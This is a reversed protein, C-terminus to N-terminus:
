IETAQLVIERYLEVAKELQEIEIFEDVVHAQEMSGPGLLLTQDFGRECLYPMDCCGKFYTIVPETGLVKEFARRCVTSVRGDPSVSSPSVCIFNELEYRIETGDFLDRLIARLEGELSAVTDGPVTRCDIILESVGPVANEKIGSSAITVTINPPPLIGCDRSQKGADLEQVKLAFRSMLYVANIGESPTGSHCQRGYIRVRFRTVGRHAIQLQLETPEGIVSITRATPPVSAAYYRMGIGDVEEDCVFVLRLEVDKPLGTEAYYAATAMMAAAGGKMDCSGRGYLRSGKQTLVFPSETSWSDGAPVVDLHGTFVVKNDSQGLVAVVNARDPRVEQIETRFGLAGLEQAVYEALPKEHNNVTQFSVLKELYARALANYKEM